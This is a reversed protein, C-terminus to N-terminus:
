VRKRLIHRKAKTSLNILRARFDQALYTSCNCILCASSYRIIYFSVGFAVNMMTQFLTLPFRKKFGEDDKFENYIEMFEVEDVVPCHPHFHIFYLKVLEDRLKKEPLQSAEAISIHRSVHTSIEEDEFATEHTRKGNKKLKQSLAIASSM